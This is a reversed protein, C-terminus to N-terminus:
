CLHSQMNCTSTLTQTAMLKVANGVRGYLPMIAAGARAHLVQPFEGKGITCPASKGCAQLGDTFTSNKGKSFSAYDFEGQLLFNELKATIDAGAGFENHNSNFANYWGGDNYAYQLM